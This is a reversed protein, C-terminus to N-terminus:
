AITGRKMTWSPQVKIGLMPHLFSYLLLFVVAHM